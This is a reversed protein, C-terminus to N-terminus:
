YDQELELWNVTCWRLQNQRSKAPNEWLFYLKNTLGEPQGDANDDHRLM